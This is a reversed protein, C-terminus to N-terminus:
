AESQSPPPPEKKHEGGHVVLRVDHLVDPRINVVLCRRLLYMVTFIKYIFLSSLVVRKNQYYIIQSAKRAATLEGEM